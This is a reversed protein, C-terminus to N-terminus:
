VPLAVQTIRFKRLSQTIGDTLGIKLVHLHRVILEDVGDRLHAHAPIDSFADGTPYGLVLGHHRQGVLSRRVGAELSELRQGFVSEVREQGHRQHATAIEDAHDVHRMARRVRM